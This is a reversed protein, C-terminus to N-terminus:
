LSGVLFGGINIRNLPESFRSKEAVDKTTASSRKCVARVFGDIQGLDLEDLDVSCYCLYKMSAANTLVKVKNHVCEFKRRSLTTSSIKFNAHRKKAQRLPM